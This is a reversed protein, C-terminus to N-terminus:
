VTKQATKLYGLPFSLVYFLQAQYNKLNEQFQYKHGLIANKKLTCKQPGLHTPPAQYPIKKIRSFGAKIIYNKLLIKEQKELCPMKDEKKQQDYYNEYKASKKNLSEWTLHLIM